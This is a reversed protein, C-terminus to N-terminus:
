KQFRAREEKEAKGAGGCWPNGELVVRTGVPAALIEGLRRVCAHGAGTPDSFVNAVGKEIADMEGEDFSFTTPIAHLKERLEDDTVADFTVHFFFLREALVEQLRKAKPGRWGPSAVCADDPLNDRRCLDVKAYETISRSFFEDLLRQRNAELLSDTADLFNLDVVYSLLGRPNAARPDAGRSRRFADVLIVVIREHKTIAAAHNALLVRKVSTLGLNDANGGDFIHVYCEPGAGPCAPPEHMDRLTMYNFAAPFTASAMVGRALEYDAIDSHLKAAFDEHTFTFVTGFIKAGIPDNEGYSRSGVTANLVINPRSPNLDRFRLDIGTTTHDFFNDAFTQAMIDTRDFATFWFKAVNVPWFWNGVWRAIYNRSMLDSVTREDWIRRGSPRRPDGPDFSSVYYAAALSGGSVSSILDVENLANIAGGQPGPVRELALMTRASLYAARAGGGSLALLVLVRPERKVPRQAIEFSAQPV